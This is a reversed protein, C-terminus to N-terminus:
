KFKVLIKVDKKDTKEIYRRRKRSFVKKAFAKLRGWEGSVVLKDKRMQKNKRNGRVV